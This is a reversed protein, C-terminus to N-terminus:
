CAPFHCGAQTLFYSGQRRWADIVGGGQGPKTLTVTVSADMLVSVFGVRDIGWKEAIIIPLFAIMREITPCILKERTTCNGKM